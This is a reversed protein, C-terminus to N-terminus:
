WSNEPPISPSILDRWPFPKHWGVPSLSFPKPDVARSLTATLRPRYLMASRASKCAPSGEAMWPALNISAIHEPALVSQWDTDCKVRM